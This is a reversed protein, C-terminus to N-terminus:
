GNKRRKPFLILYCKRFTIPYAHAHSVICYYGHLAVFCVSLVQLAGRMITCWLVHDDVLLEEKTTGGANRILDPISFEILTEFPNGNAFWPKTRSLIKSLPLGARSVAKQVQPNIKRLAALGITLPHSLTVERSREM